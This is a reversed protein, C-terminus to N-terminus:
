RRGTLGPGGQHRRRDPERAPRRPRGPVDMRPPRDGPRRDARTRRRDAPVAGADHRLQRRAPHGQLDRSAGARTGAALGPRGRLRSRPHPRPPLRPHNADELLEIKAGWPDTVFSIYLKAPGFHRPEWFEEAGDALMAAHVADLDEVSWGSHDLGTGLSPGPSEAHKWHLEAAGAGAQFRAAVTDAKAENAAANVLVGGFHRAYWAAAAAPDNANLAVHDFICTDPMPSTGRDIGTSPPFARSQAM